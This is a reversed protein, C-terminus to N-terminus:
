DVRVRVPGSAALGASEAVMEHQGKELPWGVVYPSPARAVVRGDVRLAVLGAAGPAEVRVSVVQAAVPRDPDLLFRTGDHPYGIRLQGSAAVSAAPCLPSFADPVTPRHAAAAWAALPGDYREFTRRGVHEMACGPGARLGNRVDVNVAEHMTCASRSPAGRPLWEKVVHGHCAHTPAGGSLACVEVLDLGDTDGDIRLPAAIPAYRAAAEMVARFIPAAGTIGSVGEMPSGDFNGAWVAVTVERTYGVTWNDRFGKSTGTKAAVDFPLDLASRDGFAGVRASPDRLIDTIVRAIPAPLVRRTEDAPPPAGPTAAVFRLPKWVGDRALTAYANALELLTVEGDGLAIGPGYHEAGAALSAFGLERLREVVLPEGTEHAVWVAPVNLSSALAERVRVPGRFHEDYNSPAYTGGPLDLRLEVDPVVTAADMGRKEMALAYVFPKLTSGPQRRARVGDNQGLRAADSFDPSGVYALVEGTANALVVVSAATVHRSGLPLLALSTAHEAERQLARSVTTTLPGGRGDLPGGRGNPLKGDRLAQVLHPAGFTGKQVHLHLPEARAREYAEQSLWGAAVMRALVVDRRALARDSHRTLEYVHPGRPVAALTAAEAVSLKAPPKDFYYRAGADIGRVGDGFPARNLYEELITDKSLSAEIRLAMAAEQVKGRLDRRHPRVLRALQMTITSAGSVVRRRWLDAGAARAVALPDVGPHRYFRADEAALMAHAVDPGMEALPVRRARTADDARIERLVAGDRDLVRLSDEFPRTGAGALEAPLPTLAALVLLAVVPALALGLLARALPSHRLRRM